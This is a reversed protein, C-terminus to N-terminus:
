GSRAEICDPITQFRTCESWDGKASQCKGETRGHKRNRFILQMFSVCKDIEGGRSGWPASQVHSATVELPGDDAARGFHCDTILGIGHPGEASTPLLASFSSHGSPSQGKFVAQLQFSKTAVSRSPLDSCQTRCSGLPSSPVQGPLCSSHNRYQWGEIYPVLQLDALCRM